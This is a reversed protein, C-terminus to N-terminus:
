MMEEHEKCKKAFEELTLLVTEDCLSATFYACDYMKMYGLGHKLYIDLVEKDMESIVFSSWEGMM